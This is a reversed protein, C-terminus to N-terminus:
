VSDRWILIITVLTSLAFLGWFVKPGLKRIWWAYCSGIFKFIAFPDLM